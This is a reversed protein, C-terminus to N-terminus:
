MRLSADGARRHLPRDDAIVLWSFRESRRPATPHHAEGVVVSRSPDNPSVPWRRLNARHVSGGPAPALRDLGNSRAERRAARPIGPAAHHWVAIARHFAPDYYAILDLALNGGPNPSPAATANGLPAGLLVLTGIRM